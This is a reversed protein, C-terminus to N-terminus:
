CPVWASTPLDDTFECGVLGASLFSVNKVYNSSRVRLLNKKVFVAEQGLLFHPCSSEL